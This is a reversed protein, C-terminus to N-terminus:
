DASKLDEEQEKRALKEQQKADFWDIWGAPRIYYVWYVFSVSMLMFSVSMITDSLFHSGLAMRKWAIIATCILGLAVILYRWLPKLVFALSLFVMAVGAVEGSSFSCNDRCQDSWVWFDSYQLSGGFEELFQPRARGWNGKFIVNVILVPGFLASAGLFSWQHWKLGWIVKQRNFADVWGGIVIVYFFFIAFLVGKRFTNILDDTRLHFRSNEDTFSRAMEMDLSPWSMFIVLSALAILIGVALFLMAERATPMISTAHGNTGAPFMDKHDSM